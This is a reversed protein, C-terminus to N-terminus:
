RTVPEVWRRAGNQLRLAKFLRTLDGEDVLTAAGARIWHQADTANALFETGPLARGAHCDILRLARLRFRPNM